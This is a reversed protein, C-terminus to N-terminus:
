DGKYKLLELEFVVFDDTRYKLVAFKVKNIYVYEHLQYGTCKVKYKQSHDQYTTFYDFDTSNDYFNNVVPQGQVFLLKREKFYGFCGQLEGFKFKDALSNGGNDFYLPPYSKRIESDDDYTNSYCVSPITVKIEKEEENGLDNVRKTTSNNVLNPITLRIVSPADSDVTKEMSIINEDTLYDSASAGDAGWCVDYNDPSIYMPNRLGIFSRCNLSLANLFDNTKINLFDFDTAQVPTRGWYPDTAVWDGFKTPYTMFDKDAELSYVVDIYEPCAFAQDMVYNDDGNNVYIVGGIAEGDEYVKGRVLGFMQPQQFRQSILQPVDISFDSDYLVDEVTLGKIARGARISDAFDGNNIYNGWYETALNDDWDDYTENWVSIPSTATAKYDCRFVQSVPEISNKDNNGTVYHDQHITRYLRVKYRKKIKFKTPFLFRLSENESDKDINIGLCKLLDLVNVSSFFRQFNNPCPMQKSGISQATRYNNALDKIHYNWSNSNNNYTQFQLKEGNVATMTGGRSYQAGYELLKYLQISDNEGWNPIFYDKLTDRFVFNEFAPTNPVCQYVATITDPTSGRYILRGRFLPAGNHILLITYDTTVKKKYTVWMNVPDGIWETVEVEREERKLIKNNVENNILKLDFSNGITYNELDQLQSQAEISFKTDAMDVYKSLDKCYLEM